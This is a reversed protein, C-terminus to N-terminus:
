GILTGSDLLEPCGDVTGHLPFVATEGEVGIRQVFNRSYTVVGFVVYLKGGWSPPVHFSGINQFDPKVPGCQKGAQNVLIVFPMSVAGVVGDACRLGVPQLRAGLFTSTAPAGPVGGLWCDGSSCAIGGLSITDGDRVPPSVFMCPRGGPAYPEAKGCSEPDIRGSVTWQCLVGG